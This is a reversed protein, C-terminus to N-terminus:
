IWDLTNTQGRKTTNLRTCEARLCRWQVLTNTQNFPARASTISVKSCPTDDPDRPCHRGDRQFNRRAATFCTAAKSREVRAARAILSVLRRLHSSVETLLMDRQASNLRVRLPSSVVVSSSGSSRRARGVNTRPGSMQFKVTPSTSGDHFNTLESCNKNELRINRRHGCCRRLKDITNPTNSKRTPVCQSIVAPM